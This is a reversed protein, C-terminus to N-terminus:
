FGRNCLSGLRPRHDLLLVAITFEGLVVTATLFSSGIIATRINPMVVRILATWWGAGLNRATGM